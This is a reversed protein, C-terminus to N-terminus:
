RRRRRRGARARAPVGKSAFYIATMLAGAALVSAVIVGTNTKPVDNAQQFTIPAAALQRTQITIM